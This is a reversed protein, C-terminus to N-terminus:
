SSAQASIIWARSDFLVGDPTQHAQLLARLREQAQERANASVASLAEQVSLFQSVFSFASEIDAGYFVPEHVEDFTVDSFGATQLVHQAIRPDGLSFAQSNANTERAVAVARQIEVAWENQERAQWVIMVLRGRPGLARRINSFAAAPDAFFMTGFRSIAIDYRATSFAYREVDAHEYSANKPGEALTLARARELLERSRDIGLASGDRAMRAADRTTEGAGCGIDLCCSTRGIDLASRFAANHRRLELDYDIMVRDGVRNDRLSQHGHSREVPRGGRSCRQLGRGVSPAAIRFPRPCGILVALHLAAAATLLVVMGVREHTM